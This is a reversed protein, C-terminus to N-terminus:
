PRLLSAVIKFMVRSKDIISMFGNNVSRAADNIINITWADSFTM